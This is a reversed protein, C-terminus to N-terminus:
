ISCCPKLSAVFGSLNPKRRRIGSILFLLAAGPPPVSIAADALVCSFKGVWGKSQHSSSCEVLASTTKTTRIKTVLKQKFLYCYHSPYSTHWLFQTFFFFRNKKGVSISLKWSPGFTDTPPPNLKRKWILIILQVSAFQLPTLRM